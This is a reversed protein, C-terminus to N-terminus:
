QTLRGSHILQKLSKIVVELKTIGKVDEYMSGSTDILFSFTTSPRSQAAEAQPRIKLMLFLRQDATDAPLFDRNPTLSVTLM